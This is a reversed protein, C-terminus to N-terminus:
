ILTIIGTGDSIIDGEDVRDSNVSLMKVRSKDDVAKSDMPFRAAHNAPAVHRTGNSWLQTCVQVSFM